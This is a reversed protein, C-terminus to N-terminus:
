IKIIKKELVWKVLKPDTRRFLVHLNSSNIDLKMNKEEVLYKILELNGSAYAHLLINNGYSNKVNIDMKQEEILYKAIDLYGFECVNFLISDTNGYLEKNHIDVKQKEILYKVLELNGGCCADILIRDINIKKTKILYDVININTYDKELLCYDTYNLKEVLYKFLKSKINSYICANLLVKKLIIKGINIHQTEILYKIIEIRKSFFRDGLTYITLTHIVDNFNNTNFKSKNFLYKIIDLDYNECANLLMKKEIKNFNTTQM